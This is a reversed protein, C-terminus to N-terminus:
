KDTINLKKQVTFDLCMMKTTIANVLTDKDLAYEQNGV